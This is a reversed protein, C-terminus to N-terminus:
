IVYDEPDLNLDEAAKDVAEQLTKAADEYARWAVAIPDDKDLGASKWGIYYRFYYDFGESSMGLMIKEIVEKRTRDKAM